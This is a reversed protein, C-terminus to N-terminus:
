VITETPGAHWDLAQRRCTLHMSHPKSLLVTSGKRSMLRSILLALVRSFASCLNVAVSYRSPSFLYLHGRCAQKTRAALRMAMSVAGLTRTMWNLRKSNLMYPWFIALFTHDGAVFMVLGVRCAWAWDELAAGRFDCQASTFM